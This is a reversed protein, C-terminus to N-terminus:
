ITPSPAWRISFGLAALWVTPARHTQRDPLLLMSADSAQRRRFCPLDGGIDHPQEFFLANMEVSSVRRPLSQELFATLIELSAHRRGVKLPRDVLQERLSTETM